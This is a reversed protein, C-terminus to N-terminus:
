KSILNVVDSFNIELMKVSALIRDANRDISQVGGSQQKLELTAQKIERIKKVVEKLNFESSM